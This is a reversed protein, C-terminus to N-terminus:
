AIRPNTVAMHVTRTGADADVFTSFSAITAMKEPNPALLVPM